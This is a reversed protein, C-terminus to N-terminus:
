AFKLLQATFRSVGLRAGLNRLKQTLSNLTEEFLEEFSSTKRGTGAFRSITKLESDPIQVITDWGQKVM